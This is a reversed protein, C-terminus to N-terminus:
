NSNVWCVIFIGVGISGFFLLGRLFFFNLPPPPIEREIGREQNIKLVQRQSTMNTVCCCRQIHPCIYYNFVYFGSYNHSPTSPTDSGGAGMQVGPIMKSSSGRDLTAAKSLIFIFEELLFYKM